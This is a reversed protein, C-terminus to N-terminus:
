RILWLMRSGWTRKGGFRGANYEEGPTRHLANYSGLIVTKAQDDDSRNSMNSDGIRACIHENTESDATDATYTEVVM